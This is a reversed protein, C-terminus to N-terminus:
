FLCGFCIGFSPPSRVAYFQQQQQQQQQLSSLWRGCWWGLSVCVRDLLGGRAESIILRRTRGQEQHRSSGPRSRHVWSVPRLDATISLSSSAPSLVARPCSNNITTLTSRWSFPECAQHLHSPSQLNPTREREGINNNNDKLSQVESINRTSPM